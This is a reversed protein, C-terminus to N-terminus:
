HLSARGDAIVHGSQGLRVGLLYMRGRQEESEIQYERCFAQLPEVFAEPAAARKGIARCKGTYGRYAEEIEVREGSAPELLDALLEPVNGISVVPSSSVLKPKQLKPPIIIAPEPVRQVPPLVAVPEAKVEVPEPMVTELHTESSRRWRLRWRWKGSPGLPHAGISLFLGSFLTLLIPALMPRYLRVRDPTIAGQSLSAIREAVADQQEVPANQLADRAADVATKARAQEEQAKACKPGQGSECERRVTAMATELAATAETESREALHRAREAKVRAAQATDAVGGTREIAAIFIFTVALPICM